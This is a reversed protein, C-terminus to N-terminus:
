ALDRGRPCDDLRLERGRARKLNEKARVRAGDQVNRLLVPDVDAELSSGEGLDGDGRGALHDGEVGGLTEYL